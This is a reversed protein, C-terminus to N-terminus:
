RLIAQGNQLRQHWYPSHHGHTGLHVPQPKTVKEAYFAQMDPGMKVLLILGCLIAASPQIGCWASSAGLQSKQPVPNLIKLNLVTCFRSTVTWLLQALLTVEIALTDLPMCSMLALQM